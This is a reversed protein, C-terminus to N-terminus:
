HPTKKIGLPFWSSVPAALLYKVNFKNALLVVVIPGATAIICGIILHLSLTEIGLFNKLAVRAGSGALIHMLYIAMSSAGIFQFVRSRTRTLVSSLSVVFLISILALALTLLGKNRYNLSLIDHFYWQSLVFLASFLLCATPSGLKITKGYQNYVIGLVFFVSNQAIFRLPLFDPTLAPYVYLVASLVFIVPSYKNTSANFVFASAVFIVFLAYLFWFQARPEWMLSFVDAFTLTGNTYRSLYVEIGGQLISWLIYPYVITDIKSLILQKRGRKALSQSFFLGSLFFFLPMHFSYVISDALLYIPKPFEIGANYVGRAVHGYVVLLIGIAKAYDVWDTRQEM